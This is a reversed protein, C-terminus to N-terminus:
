WKSVDLDNSIEIEINALERIVFNYIKKTKMEQFDAFLNFSALEYVLDIAKFNANNEDENLSMASRYDSEWDALNNKALYEPMKRM